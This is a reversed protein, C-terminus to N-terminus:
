TDFNIMQRMVFIGLGMLSAGILLIMHGVSNSFLEMIYSPTTIFVLLMVVIPLSGIIMASAKAESSLAKIKEKLMKRSRLVISLNGLAESLNGGAQQQITIVINFFNVEPLPMRRHMRELSEEVTSGMQINDIVRAFEGGLPQPSERAIIRLCEILPLGSKVGRVIVDIADAFQTVFKKQRAGIAMSLFWRPVGLGVVFAIAGVLWLAQGAVFATLGAVLGLGVSAGWFLNPSFSFGAQRIQESLTKTNIDKRRKAERERLSKMSEQLQKNRQKQKDAPGGRQSPKSTVQQLRKQGPASGGGSTVAFGVGVISVFALGGVIYVMMAPDM